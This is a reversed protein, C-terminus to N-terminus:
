FVFELTASVVRLRGGPVFAAQTNTLNGASHEGLHISEGQLKLAVNRAFDWRVGIAVSRQVGVFRSLLSNLGGNLAEAALAQPLPFGDTNLGAETDGGASRVRSLTAYPTFDDVRLGGGVFWASRTGLFSHAATRGYESTVFWDGPDYNFGIGSFNVRKNQGSYRDAIVAGAPGFQRFGDFLSEAFPLNLRGQLYSLRISAAGYDVTNSFGVIDRATATGGGPYGIDTRGFALQVTNKVEGVHLRYSADVGDSTTIPLLNYVEGPTRVWPIAYGVKRYDASLFNPLTIRGARLRFDPTAQYKINAWEVTPRYSNDNRQESILQLVV